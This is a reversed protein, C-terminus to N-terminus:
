PSKLENAALVVRAIVTIFLIGIWIWALESIWSPFLLFVTYAIGTEGAEALGAALRMGRNDRSPIKKQAELSGLALAGTICLVYFFLIIQWQILPFVLSFAVIMISYAAMDCLIDLFAGFLSAQGTARAFIGDTGDLLRGLWWVILSLLLKGQVLLSASIFALALSIVTIKNPTLGLVSYMRILPSTYKPLKERFWNDIVFEGRPTGHDPRWIGCRDM